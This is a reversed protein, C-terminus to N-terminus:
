HRLIKKQLEGQSAFFLSHVLTCKSSGEGWSEETKTRYGSILKTNPWM